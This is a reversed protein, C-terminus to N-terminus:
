KRRVVCFSTGKRFLLSAVFFTSLGFLFRCILLHWSSYSDHLGALKRKCSSPSVRAIQKLDTDLCNFLTAASYAFARKGSNSRSFPIQLLALKPACVLQVFPPPKLCLPASSNNLVTFLVVFKRLKKLDFIPLWKLKSFLKCISCDLRVNKFAFFRSYIVLVM